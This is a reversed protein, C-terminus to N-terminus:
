RFATNPPTLVVGHGEMILMYSYVGGMFDKRPLEPVLTRVYRAAYGTKM